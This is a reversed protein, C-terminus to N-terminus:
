FAYRLGVTVEHVLLDDWSTATQTSGDSMTGSNKFAGLNQLRYGLDVMLSDALPGALGLMLAYTLNDTEAGGESPQGGGVTRQGTELRAWGAGAGLYPTWGGGIMEGLSAVDLYGALMATSADVETETARGASDTAEIERDTRYGGTLELRFAPSVRYGVGIRFVGAGNADVDNLRGAATDGDPAHALSYGADARLYFGGERSAMGSDRAPPVTAPAAVPKPMAAPAATPAAGTHEKEPLPMAAPAPAPEPNAPIMPTGARRLEEETARDSEDAGAIETIMEFRPQPAPTRAVAPAAMLMAAALASALITGTRGTAFRPM